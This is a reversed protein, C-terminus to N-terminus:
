KGQYEKQLDKLTHFKRGRHKASLAQRTRKDIYDIFWQDEHMKLFEIFYAVELLYNAPLESIRNIIQKKLSINTM